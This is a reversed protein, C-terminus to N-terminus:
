PQPINKRRIGLTLLARIRQREDGRTSIVRELQLGIELDKGSRGRLVIKVV